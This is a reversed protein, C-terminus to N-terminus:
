YPWDRIVVSEEVGSGDAPEHVIFEAASVPAFHGNKIHELFPTVDISMYLEVNGHEERLLTLAKIADELKM